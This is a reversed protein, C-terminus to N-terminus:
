VHSDHSEGYTGSAHWALRVLVPGYSGDDYDDKEVIQRSITNYVKQYDEESPEFIGISQSASGQKIHVEPVKGQQASYFYVAGGFAAAAATIGIYASANSKLRTPGSSYHRRSSQFFEKVATQRSSRAALRISSTAAVRPVAKTLTRAAKSM